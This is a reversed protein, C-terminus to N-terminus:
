DKKVHGISEVIHIESSFISATRAHEAQTLSTFELADDRRSSWMGNNMFYFPRNREDLWELHYITTM